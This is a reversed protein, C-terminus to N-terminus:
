QQAAGRTSHHKQIANEMQNLLGMKKGNERLPKIEFGVIGIYEVFFHPIIIIAASEFDSEAPLASSTEFVVSSSCDKLHIRSRREIRSNVWWVPGLNQIVM